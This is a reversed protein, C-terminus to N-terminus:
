PAGTVATAAARDVLDGFLSAPWRRHFDAARARAEDGRRLQALAEIRLAEREEVLSGARFQRAHLQVAELAAAGNGRLLASRCRQLLLQERALADGGPAREPRPAVAPAAVAPAAVAPAAVAPAAVAPPAAAAPMAPPAVRPAVEPRVTPAPAPRLATAGAAGLVVGVRLGLAAGGRAGGAGGAPGPKAAPTPAALAAETAERLARVTDPALPPRAREAEFFAEVDDPLADDHPLADDDPASTV